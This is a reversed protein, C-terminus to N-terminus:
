TRYKAESERLAEEAITQDTIDEYTILQKDDKLAVARFQIIKEQGNKCRVTFIKPKIEDVKPGEIFDQYWVASVKKQYEADPYAKKFWSAKDPLDQCDYGFIDTFKPNFYEFTRDPRMISIGFPAYEALTRFREESKRLLEEASKRDTVDVM